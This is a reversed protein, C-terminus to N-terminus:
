GNSRLRRVEADHADRWPVGSADLADSIDTSHVGRLSLERLVDTGSLVTSSSWEEAVHPPTAMVKFGGEVAEVTLVLAHQRSPRSGFPV